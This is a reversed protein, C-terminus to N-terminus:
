LFNTLCIIYVHHPDIAKIMAGIVKLYKSLYLIFIIDDLLSNKVKNCDECEPIKGSCNRNTYSSECSAQTEGPRSPGVYKVSCAGEEECRYSCYRDRYRYKNLSLAEKSSVVKEDKETGSNISLVIVCLVIAIIVVSAGASFLSDEVSVCKKKSSKRVDERCNKEPDKVDTECVKSDM